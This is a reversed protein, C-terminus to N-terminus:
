EKFPDWGKKEPLTEIAEGARRWEIVPRDRHTVANGLWHFPTGTEVAVEEVTATEVPDVILLLEYDEGGAVVQSLTPADESVVLPTIDIQASVGSAKCVRQLDLGLGDSLDIACATRKLKRNLTTAFLQRSAPSRWPDSDTVPIGGQLQDLAQAAKGPFGTVGIRDGPRASDRQWSRDSEVHGVVTAHLSLGNACRTLNGGLLTMSHLQMERDIEEWFADSFYGPLQDSELSLLVGTATGGMASIDSLSGRLLRRALVGPPHWDDLWDIKFHQGSVLSDVSLVTANGTPIPWVAADDGPGSLPHAPNSRPHIYHAIWEEETM